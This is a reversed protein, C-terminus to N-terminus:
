RIYICVGQDGTGSIQQTLNRCRKALMSCCSRPSAVLLIHHDMARHRADIIGAHRAVSMKIHIEIHITDNQRGQVRSEYTIQLKPSCDVEARVFFSLLKEDGDKNGHLPRQLIQPQPKIVCSNEPAVVMSTCRRDYAITSCRARKPQGDLVTSAPM